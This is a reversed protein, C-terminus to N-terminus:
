GEWKTRAKRRRVQIVKLALSKEVNSIQKLFHILWIKSHENDEGGTKLYYQLRMAKAELLVQNTEIKQGLIIGGLTGALSMPQGNQNYIPFTIKRLDLKKNVQWAYLLPNSPVCSGQIKACVESYLIQNGNKQTGYLAQVMHDLKSIESLIDQELLSATNSVVLVSAFNVETSKRYVSFRDSDDATFHEQVFRREAKAPSGIPTYQEELDEKGDKPLYTFGTGLVATLLIPVLLFVWPHLGVKRGLWQFAKSLPAELCNTRCRHKHSVETLFQSRSPPSDPKLSVCSSLSEQEAGLPEARQGSDWSVELDQEQSSELVTDLKEGSAQPRAARLAVGLDRIPEPRASRALKPLSEPEMQATTKSEAESVTESPSLIVGSPFAVNEFAM